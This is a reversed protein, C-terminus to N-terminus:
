RHKSLVIREFELKAHKFNLILGVPLKTIRLYNLMQGREHDTIRDITKADVAVKGFAILDPIFEGVYEGKYLVEFRRQQDFAIGNLKFLVTLSNEYIKEDLGHGVEKLIEFSFGIIKETEARFILKSEGGRRLDPKEDTDM